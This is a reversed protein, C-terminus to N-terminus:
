RMNEDGPGVAPTLDDDGGNKEGARDKVNGRDTVGDNPGHVGGQHVVGNTPIHVETGHEIPDDIPFDKQVEYSSEDSELSM